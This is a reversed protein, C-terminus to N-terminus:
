LLSQLRSLQAIPAHGKMGTLVDVCANGAQVCFAPYGPYKKLAVLALDGLPAALSEHERVGCMWVLGRLIKVNQDRIPESNRVLLKSGGWDRYKVPPPKVSRFWRSVCEVFEQEAVAELVTAAQASWKKGPKSGSSESAHQILAAWNSQAAKPMKKIEAEIPKAWPDGKDWSRQIPKGLLRAVRDGRNRAEKSSNAFIHFKETRLSALLTETLPERKAVAECLPLILSRYGSSPHRQITTLLEQVANATWGSTSRLTHSIVFAVASRKNSLAIMRPDRWELKLKKELAEQYEGLGIQRELLSPMAEARKHAETKLIAAAEKFRRPKIEYVWKDSPMRAELADIMAHLWAHPSDASIEFGYATKGSGTSHKKSAM